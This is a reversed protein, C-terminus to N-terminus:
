SQTGGFEVVSGPRPRGWNDKLIVNVLLGPGLLLSLVLFVAARGPVGPSRWWSLPGGARRVRRLHAHRGRWSRLDM